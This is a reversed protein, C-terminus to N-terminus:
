GRGGVLQQLQSMEMQMTPWVAPVESEGDPIQRWWTAALWKQIEDRSQMAIYIASGLVFAIAIALGVPGLALSTFVASTVLAAGAMASVAYATALGMNGKHYEDVFHYIDWAM